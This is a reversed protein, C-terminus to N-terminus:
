QGLGKLGTVTITINEKTKPSPTELSRLIFTHTCDGVEAAPLECTSLENM